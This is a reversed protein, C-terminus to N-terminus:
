SAGEIMRGTLGRLADLCDVTLLSAVERPPETPMRSWLEIALWPNRATTASARLVTRSSAPWASRVDRLADYPWWDAGFETQARAFSRWKPVEVGRSQLYLVPLLEFMSVLRHLRWPHRPWAVVRLATRGLEVLRGPDALGDTARLGATVARGGLSRAENLAVRPLGLAAGADGLLRPTALEFGHHQMPQHALVARQAALIRRRLGRLIRPDEAAADSIVLIADVDSFGTTGGRAQSGFLVLEVVHEDDLLPSLRGALGAARADPRWREGGLRVETGEASPELTRHAQALAHLPLHDGRRSRLAGSHTGCLYGSLSRSVLRGSHPERGNPSRTSSPM